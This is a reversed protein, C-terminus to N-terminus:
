KVDGRARSLLEQQLSRFKEREVDYLRQTEGVVNIASIAENKEAVRAEYSALLARFLTVTVIAFASTVAVLAVALMVVPQGSALGDLAEGAGM